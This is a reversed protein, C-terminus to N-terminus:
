PGHQSIRFGGEVLAQPRGTRHRREPLGFGGSKPGGAPDGDKGGGVSRHLPFFLRHHDVPLPAYLRYESDDLGGGLDSQAPLARVPPGELSSGAPQPYIDMGSAQPHSLLEFSQGLAGRLTLFWQDPSPEAAAGGGEERGGGAERGDDIASAIASGRQAPEGPAMRLLDIPM